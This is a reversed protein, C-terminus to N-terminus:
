RVGVDTWARDVASYVAPDAAFLSQAAARTLKAFAKMQMNGTANSSTLAAYWVKGAKDWSHGGITTAALYFAYNPIGSNEHPDGGQVYDSFHSPQPSLCHAAGPNAMDRLCTYGKAAAAPGIIDAGILWDAEAVTQNKRWQRFMSGFVDSVSENLAGPQNTYSLGATFQTVGHTLEHGIVDNSTTFDLFIQGDGDGYTMQAGNWFANSYRVDYHISSVLTMGANDVSNRDFFQQYFEAVATTEDFARKATSDASNGPTTVPAGPLSKTSKCDYVTESPTAALTASIAPSMTGGALLGAQAAKTQAQRLKRWVPELAVTQRMAKRSESPMSEDDALKQLVNKPVIFCGCRTIM